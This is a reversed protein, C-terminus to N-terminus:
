RYKFHRVASFFFFMNDIKLIVYVQSLSFCHNFDRVATFDKLLDIIDNSQLIIVWWTTFLILSGQLLKLMNPLFIRVMWTAQTKNSEDQLGIAEGWENGEKMRLVLITRIATLIDTQTMVALPIVMAQAVKLSSQTRVPINLVSSGFGETRIQNDLVMSGLTIQVCFAVIGLAWSKSLCGFLPSVEDVLPSFMMLTFTDQDFSDDRSGGSSSEGPSGFLMTDFFGHITNKKKKRALQQQEHAPYVIVEQESVVTSNRRRSLGQVPSLTSVLRSEEDTDVRYDEIPNEDKQYKSQTTSLSPM